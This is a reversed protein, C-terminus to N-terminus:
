QITELDAGLAQLTTDFGPFHHNIREAGYIYTSGKAALGAVTAAMTLLADNHSEILNGRLTTPGTIAFGDSTPEVYAGMKQLLGVLSAIRETEAGRLERVDQVVTKGYAQTAAVALAPLEDIMSLIQRGGLITGRLESYTVDLDAIPEGAETRENKYVINAGMERLAEVIGTRTPNIGVSLITVRSDPVISAAVLLFATTSIDGPITFELPSLAKSPMEIYITNGRITSGLSEVPANMAKLMRETHDQSLSPERIITLGRAYMGALLLASKVQASAVPLSYEVANLRRRQIGLPVYKGDQRGIVQAGMGKLPAIIRDMPHWKLSGSGDLFSNFPQGVLLGMMLEPTEGSEGCNLINTSEQLGDIGKGHVLLGTSATGTAIKNMQIGLEGLVSLTALCSPGDFFNHIRSPGGAIAAFIASRHSISKDGPVRCQGNLPKSTNIQIHSM